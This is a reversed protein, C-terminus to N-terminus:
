TAAAPSLVLKRYAALVQAIAEHRQMIAVQVDDLHERIATLVDPGGAQRAVDLLSRRPESRALGIDDPPTADPWLARITADSSRGQNDVFFCDLFEPRAVVAEARVLERSTAASALARRYQDRLEQIREQNRTLGDVALVVPVRKIGVLPEAISQAESATYGWTVRGGSADLEPQLLRQLLLQNDPGDTVIIVGM